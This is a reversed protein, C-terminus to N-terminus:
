STDEDRSKATTPVAIPNEYKAVEPDLDLDAPRAYLGATLKGRGGVNSLDHVFSRALEYSESAARMTRRFDLAPGMSSPTPLLVVPVQQAAASLQSRRQSAGLITNVRAVVKTASTSVPAAARSGTDFIVISGAGREVALRAPLNASALGDIYRRGSIEVPPLVGPIASSALLAPILAGEDLATAAGTALDTAVAAMPLALEDFHRAALITELAEREATSEVLSTKSRTAATIMSLWSDGVLVDLDLQSWVYALRHTAAIPDEAVIASTLAGASTGILADPRIDTEYIAQLLGWQVCGHAGGGAMVFVIPKPLRRAFSISEHPISQAGRNGMAAVNPGPGPVTLPYSAAM